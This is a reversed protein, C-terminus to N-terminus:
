KIVKYDTLLKVLATAANLAISRANDLDVRSWPQGADQRSQALAIADVALNHATQWTTYAQKAKEFQVATLLKADYAKVTEAMLSVNVDRDYMLGEKAKGLPTTAACAALSVLVLVAILLSLNRRMIRM